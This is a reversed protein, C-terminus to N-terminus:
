GFLVRGGPQAAQRLPCAGEQIQEYDGSTIHPRIHAKTLRLPTALSNPPTLFSQVITCHCKGKHLENHASASTTARPPAELRRGEAIGGLRHELWQVDLEGCQVDVHHM